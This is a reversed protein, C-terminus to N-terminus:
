THVKRCACLAAYRVAMEAACIRTEKIEKKHKYETYSKIIFVCLDNRYRNPSTVTMSWSPPDTNALTQKTIPGSMRAFDSTYARSLAMRTKKAGGRQRQYNSTNCYLQCGSTPRSKLTTRGRFNDLKQSILKVRASCAEFDIVCKRAIDTARKLVGLRCETCSNYSSELLSCLQSGPFNRLGFHTFIIFIVLNENKVKMEQWSCVANAM